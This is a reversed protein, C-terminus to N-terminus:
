LVFATRFALPVYLTGGPVLEPQVGETWRFEDAGDFPAWGRVAQIVQTILPGAADRAQAGTRDGSHKVVLCVVWTQAVLQAKPNSDHIVQDGAWLVLASPTPLQAGKVGDLSAESRVDALDPLCSRLREILADEVSLYNFAPTTM